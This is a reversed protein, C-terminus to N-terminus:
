LHRVHDPAGPEVGVERPDVEGDEALLLCLRHVVAPDDVHLGPQVEDPQEEEVRHRGGEQGADAPVRLVDDLVNRACASHGAWLAPGYGCGRFRFGRVVRATAIAGFGGSDSM